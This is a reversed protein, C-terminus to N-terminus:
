APTVLDAYEPHKEIYGAVFPCQPVISYGETRADDLAFKALSSAIGRGGFDDGVITHQLVRGREDDIYSIFGALQDGLFAEYRLNPADHVLRPATTDTMAEDQEKEPTFSVGGLISLM